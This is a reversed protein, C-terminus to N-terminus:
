PVRQTRKWLHAKGTLHEYTVTGGQFSQVATWQDLPDEYSRAEGLEVVHEKWLQPIGWGRQDVPLPFDDGWQAWIDGEGRLRGVATLLIPRWDNWRPGPCATGHGPLAIDKHGVVQATPYRRKADAVAYAMAEIWDPDPMGILNTAACIHYCEHNRLAVGAGQMDPPNVQYRRLSGDIERQIVEHYGIANYKPWQGRHFNYISQVAKGPDYTWAAHHVVIYRTTQRPGNKSTWYQKLPTLPYSM